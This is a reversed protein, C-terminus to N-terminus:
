DDLGFEKIAKEFPLFEGESLAAEAGAMDERDELDELMRLDSLPVVAAMPKGTKTIVIREGEHAVRSLADALTARFEGISMTDM